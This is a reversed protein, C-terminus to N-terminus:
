AARDEARDREWETRVADANSQLAHFRASAIADHAAAYWPEMTTCDPVLRNLEDHAYEIADDVLRDAGPIATAFNM